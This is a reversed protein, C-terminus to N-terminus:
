NPSRRESEREISELVQMASYRYSGAVAPDALAARMLAQIHARVAVEGGESWIRERRLAEDAMEQPTREKEGYFIIGSLESHPAFRELNRMMDGVADQSNGGREIRLLFESIAQAFPQESM